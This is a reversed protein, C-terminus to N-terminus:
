LVMSVMQHDCLDRYLNDLQEQSSAKVTITLSLYKGERSSRMEVTAPDYDPSHVRVVELVAQAFGHQRLGLVKIPFDCPFAILSEPESM